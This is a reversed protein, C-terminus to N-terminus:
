GTAVSYMGVTVTLDHVVMVHRYCQHMPNALESAQSLKAGYIFFQFPGGRNM